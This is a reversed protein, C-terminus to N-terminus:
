AGAPEVGPHYNAWMPMEFGVIRFVSGYHSEKAFDVSM